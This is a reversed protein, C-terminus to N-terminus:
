FVGKPTRSFPMTLGNTGFALLANWSEAADGFDMAHFYRESIVNEELTRRCSWDELRDKSSTHPLFLDKATRMFANSYAPGLIM